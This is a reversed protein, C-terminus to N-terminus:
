IIEGAIEVVPKPKRKLILSAILTILLGVPLIEIYTFLVVMVPNKYMETFTAMENTQKAIEAQSAGSAKLKELMYTAYKEGFDPMFCYYDVVWALVYITSAILTILLGIKFAKGFSIVGANYKDRYNKIGVFVLSFALLMSAYGVWMGGDFNGSRHYIGMTIFLMAAVILGAILGNVVVIKKM